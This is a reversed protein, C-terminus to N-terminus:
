NFFDRYRMSKKSEYLDRRYKQIIDVMEKAQPNISLVKVVDDINRPMFKNVMGGFQNGLKLSMQGQFFGPNYKANYMGLSDNLTKLYNTNPIQGSDYIRVIRDYPDDKTGYKILSQEIIEDIAMADKNQLLVETALEIYDDYRFSTNRVLRSLNNASINPTFEDSEVGQESICSNWLEKLFDDFNLGEDEFKKHMEDYFEDYDIDSSSLKTIRETADFLEQMLEKLGDGNTFKEEANKIWLEYERESVDDDSFYDLIDDMLDEPLKSIYDIAERKSMKNDDSKWFDVYSSLDKIKDELPSWKSSDFSGEVRGVLAVKFLIDDPSKQRDKIMVITNSHYYNEWHSESSTSICWKTGGGFYRSANHSRPVIVLWRKTDAITRSDKKIQAMKGGAVEKSKGTLFSVFDIYEKFKYLDTTKAIKDFLELNKFLEDLDVSDRNDKLVKGIWMLNKHNKSTDRNVIQQLYEDNYIGKLLKKFDDIRGELLLHAFLAM